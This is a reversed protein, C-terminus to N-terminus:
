TEKPEKKGQEADDEDPSSWTWHTEGEEKETPQRHAKLEKLEVMRIDKPVLGHAVPSILKTGTKSIDYGGTLKSVIVGVVLVTTVSIVSFWPFAINFVSFGEAM